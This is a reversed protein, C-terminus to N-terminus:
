FILEFYSNKIVKLDSIVDLTLQKNTEKWLNFIM